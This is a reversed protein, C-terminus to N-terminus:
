VREELVLKKGTSLHVLTFKNADSMQLKKKKGRMSEGSVVSVLWKLLLALALQTFM